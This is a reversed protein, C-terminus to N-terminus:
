NNAHYQDLFVFWDNLKVAGDADLDYKADWNVDGESLGYHDRFLEYDDVDVDGDGDFDASKTVVDSNANAGGDLGVNANGDSNAAGDSNAIGGSNVNANGGGDSNVGDGDSNANGGGESNANGDSNVKGGGDSNVGDGDSNANGGGESNANGDSNVKGGDDSNGDDDSNANGGGESNGDDSSGVNSNVNGGDSNANGDDSNANGGSNAAGTDAETPGTGPRDVPPRKPVPFTFECTADDDPGDVCYPVVRSVDDYGGGRAVWVVAHSEDQMNGRAAVVKVNQRRNWNEPTFTLVSPHPTVAIHSTASVSVTGTPRAGLSVSFGADGGQPIRLYGDRDAGNWHSIKISRAASVEVRLLFSEAFALDDGERGAWVVAFAGVSEAGGTVVVHQPQDWNDRDFALRSPEVTADVNGLYLSEAPDRVKEPDNTLEWLGYAGAPPPNKLRVSFSRREGSQVAVFGRSAVLANPPPATVTVPVNLSVNRYDPDGDVYFASVSTTGGGYGTVRVRRPLNWNSPTFTVEPEHYEDPPPAFPDIPELQLRAVKGDARLLWTTPESPAYGLKLTFTTSANKRLELAERSTLFGPVHATFQVFQDSGTSSYGDASSSILCLFNSSGARFDDTVRVEQFVLFTNLYNPYSTTSALETYPLGSNQAEGLMYGCDVDPGEDLEHFLYLKVNSYPIWGRGLRVSFADNLSGSTPSITIPFSYQANAIPVGAFALLLALGAFRMVRKQVAFCICSLLM